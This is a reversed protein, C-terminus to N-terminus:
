HCKVTQRVEGPADTQLDKLSFRESCSMLIGPIDTYRGLSDSRAGPFRLTASALVRPIDPGQRSELRRYGRIENRHDFEMQHALFRENEGDSLGEYDVELEEGSAASLIKQVFKHFKNELDMSWPLLDNMKRHEVAFRRDFLKLVMKGNLHPINSHFSVLM